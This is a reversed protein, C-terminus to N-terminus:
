KKELVINELNNEGKTVQTFYSGNEGGEFALSVKDKGKPCYFGSRDKLVPRKKDFDIRFFGKNDTVVSVPMSLASSAYIVVDQKDKSIVNGWFVVGCKESEGGALTKVEFIEKYVKGGSKIRFQYKTDPKLDSVKVQHTYFSKKGREDFVEEEKGEKECLLSGSTKKETVWSATFGSDSLNSIKVSLPKNSNLIRGLEGKKREATNVMFVLAAFIIGLGFLAWITEKKKIVKAKKM